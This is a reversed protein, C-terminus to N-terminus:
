YAKHRKIINKVLPSLKSKLLLEEPNKAPDERHLMYAKLPFFVNILMYRTLFFAYLIILLIAILLLLLSTNTKSRTSITEQHVRNSMNKGYLAILEMIKRKKIEYTNNFLLERALNIKQNSSLGDDDDTLHVEAIPKDMQAELVGYVNLILKMSRTEIIVLGDSHNKADNLLDLESTPVDLDKLRSLVKERRQVVNVETWYNRLHVPNLTVAFKRVESTLYDSANALEFSLGQLEAEKEIALRENRVNVCTSYCSSALFFIIIGLVLFLSIEFISQKKIM